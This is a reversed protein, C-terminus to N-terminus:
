EETTWFPKRKEFFSVFGERGEEHILCKSFLKSANATNSKIYTKLLKKTIAVANPSCMQVQKIVYNIHYDINEKNYCIYDAMGIDFAKQGDFSEALLM